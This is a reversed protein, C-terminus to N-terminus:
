LEDENNNNQKLLEAETIEKIKLWHSKVSNCASDTSSLKKVVLENFHKPEKKLIDIPQPFYEGTWYQPYLVNKWNVVYFGNDWRRNRRIVDMDALSSQFGTMGLKSFVYNLAAVASMSAAYCCTGYDHERNVLKGIYNTLEKITNIRPVKANRLEQENMTKIDEM